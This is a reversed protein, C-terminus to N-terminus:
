PLVQTNSCSSNFAAEGGCRRSMTPLNESNRSCKQSGIIPQISNAIPKFGRGSQVLSVLLMVEGAAIRCTLSTRNLKPLGDHGHLGIMEAPQQACHFSKGIESRLECGRAFKCLCRAAHQGGDHFGCAGAFTREEDEVLLRCHESRHCALAERHQWLRGEDRQQRFM